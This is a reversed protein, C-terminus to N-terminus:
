YQLSVRNISNLSVHFQINDVISVAHTSDLHPVFAYMMSHIVYYMHHSYMSLLFHHLLLLLLLHCCVPPSDMKMTLMEDCYHKDYNVLFYHM